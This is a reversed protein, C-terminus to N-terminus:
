LIEVDADDFDIDGRSFGVYAGGNFYGLLANEVVDRAEGESGARAVAAAQEPTLNLDIARSRAADSGRVRVTSTRNVRVRVAGHGAQEVQRAKRERGRDTVQVAAAEQELRDALTKPLPKGAKQAERIAKKSPPPPVRTGDIWREVTRPAVGYAAAMAKVNGGYARDRVQRAQTAAQKPTSKSTFLKETIRRFLGAM